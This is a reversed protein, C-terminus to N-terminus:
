DEMERDKDMKTLGEMSNRGRESKELIEKAYVV